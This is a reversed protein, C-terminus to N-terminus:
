TRAGSSYCRSISHPSPCAARWTITSIQTSTGKISSDPSSALRFLRSLCISLSSMLIAPDFIHSLRLKRVDPYLAQRTTAARTPEVDDQGVAALLDLLKSTDKAGEVYRRVVPLMPDLEQLGPYSFNSSVQFPGSGTRRLRRGTQSMMLSSCWSPCHHSRKVAFLHIRSLSIPITGRRPKEFAETTEITQLSTKKASSRLKGSIRDSAIALLVCLWARDSSM